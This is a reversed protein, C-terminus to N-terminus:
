AQGLAPRVQRYYGEFGLGTGTTNDFYKRYFQIFEEFEIEGSGDCDCEKWLQKFRAAPIEVHAPVKACKRLLGEFEDEGISGGRDSDCEDFNRWYRDVDVVKMQYKRALDRIKREASSLTLFEDFSWSSYWLAFDAFNLVADDSDEEAAQYWAKELMGEPLDAETASGTVQCLVKSFQDKSLAGELSALPQFLNWAQKCTDLPLNRERAVWVLENSSTSPRRSGALEHLSTSSRRSFDQSGTTPRRTELVAAGAGVLGGRSAPRSPPRQTSQLPSAGPLAPTSLRRPLHMNGTLAQAANCRQAFTSRRLPSGSKRNPMRSRTRHAHPSSGLHRTCSKDKSSMVRDADAIVGKLLNRYPRDVEAEVKLHLMDLSDSTTPDLFSQKSFRPM